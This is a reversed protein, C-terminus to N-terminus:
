ILSKLFSFLWKERGIYQKTPQQTPQKKTTQSNQKMIVYICSDIRNVGVKGFKRLERRLEIYKEKDFNRLATLCEIMLKEMTNCNNISIEDDIDMHEGHNICVTCITKDAAATEETATLIRFEESNMYIKCHKIVKIVNNM